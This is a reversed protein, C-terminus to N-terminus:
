IMMTKKFHREEFYAKALQYTQDDLNIDDWGLGHLNSDLESLSIQSNNNFANMLDKIFRKIIQSEIGKRKLRQILIESIHPVFNEM